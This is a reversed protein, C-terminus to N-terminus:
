GRKPRKEVIERVKEPKKMTKLNQCSLENEHRLIFILEYVYIVNARKVNWLLFQCKQIQTLSLKRFYFAYPFANGRQWDCDFDHACKSISGNLLNVGYKLTFM